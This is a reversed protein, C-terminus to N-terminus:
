FRDTTNTTNGFIVMKTQLIQFLITSKSLFKLYFNFIVTVPIEPFQSIRIIIFANNLKGSFKLSFPCSYNLLALHKLVAAFKFHEFYKRVKNRGM